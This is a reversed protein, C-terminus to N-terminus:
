QSAPCDFRFSSVVRNFVSEFRELQDDRCELELRFLNQEHSIFIVEDVWAGRDQPDYYRHKTLLAADGLIQMQKKELLQMREAREFTKLGELHQQLNELLSVNVPRAADTSSTLAAIDIEGLPKSYKKLGTEVYFGAGDFADGKLWRSPYTLCYGLSPNRYPKWRRDQKPVSSGPAFPILASFLTLGCILKTPWCRKPPM